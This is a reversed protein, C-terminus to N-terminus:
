FGESQDLAQTLSMLMLFFIVLFHGDLLGKTHDVKLTGLFLYVNELATIYLTATEGTAFIPYNVSRLKKSILHDLLPM